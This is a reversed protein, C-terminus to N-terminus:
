KGLKKGIDNNLRERRRDQHNKGDEERALAACFDKIDEGLLAQVSQGHAAGEELLGLVGDLIPLLNRGTFDSYAMLNDQIEEWAAQYAAPLKEGRSAFAAFAKTIDSGTIREWVNM